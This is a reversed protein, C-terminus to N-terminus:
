NLSMSQLAESIATVDVGNFRILIMNRLFWVNGRYYFNNNSLGINKIYVLRYYDGGSNKKIYYDYRIGDIELYGSKESLDTPVGGIGLANHMCNLQGGSQICTDCGSVLRYFSGIQLATDNPYRYACKVICTSGCDTQICSDSIFTGEVRLRREGDQQVISDVVNIYWISDTNGTVTITRITSDSVVKGSSNNVTSYVWTNGVKLNYLDEVESWFPNAGSCLVSLGAAAITSCVRLIKKMTM